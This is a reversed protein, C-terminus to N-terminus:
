KLEKVSPSKIQKEIANVKQQADCILLIIIAVGTLLLIVWWWKKIHQLLHM